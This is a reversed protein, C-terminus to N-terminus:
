YYSISLKNGEIWNERIYRVLETLLPTTSKTALNEFVATIHEKPLYPLTLFKRCLKHTANDNKYAPALGIEQIKRWICQAWHFSCGRILVDPFVQPISRWLASEFDLVIKELTRDKTKKKIAKLVKRYDRKRKGSMLIFALPVQKVCDGSRVFSHITFLQTFPTKVVKFTGDLYWTKSKSLFHLMNETAFILHRREDVKVDSKLFDAPIHDESIEFELDTPEAPRMRQRHRNAARALYEPNRLAPLPETSAPIGEQLM